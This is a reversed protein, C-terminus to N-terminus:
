AFSRLAAAAVPPPFLAVILLVSLLLKFLRVIVGPDRPPCIDPTPAPAVPAPPPSLFVLLAVTEIAAGLEIEFGYPPEGALRAAGGELIFM